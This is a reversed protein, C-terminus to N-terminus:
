KVLTVKKTGISNGSAITIQYIGAELASLDVLQNQVGAALKGLTMNSVVQGLINSVSITTTASNELSFKVNVQDFAPNPSVSFKSEFSNEKLSTVENVNALRSESAPTNAPGFGYSGDYNYIYEMNTGDAAVGYVFCHRDINGYTSTFLGDGYSDTYTFKYCGISPLYVDIMLASNDPNTFYAGPAASAMVQNSENTIKWSVEEPFEDFLWDLKIHTSSEETSANVTTNSTNNTADGDTSTVTSTLIIDGTTPVSVSGVLQELVEYTALNGTWDYTVDSLGGSVVITASTLPSTGFNQLSVTVDASGDCSVNSTSSGVLSIDTELSAVGCANQQVFAYHEETTIQSTETIIRSPCVTYITPYYTIELLTAISADDIIPYPTGTVWDGQSGSGGNLQALGTSADGEVFFVRLENTGDPGYLTYLDELAGSNHYGWCPGCWTASVDIIVPYGEDLLDYLNWVNGNLDTGTFDPCISGSQLQASSVTAILGAALSFLIKKM